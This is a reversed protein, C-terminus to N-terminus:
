KLVQIMGTQKESKFGDDLLAEYFYTGAEEGAWNNQYTAAEFVKKGWRNFIILSKLTAGKVIFVDNKGDKLDPTIVNPVLIDPRAFIVITHSKTTICGTSNIYESKAIYTTTEGLANLLLTNGNAILTGNANLWSALGDTAIELTAGSGYQLLTDGIIAITPKDRLTFTAKIRIGTCAGIQERVAFFSSDVNSNQAVLRIRTTNAIVPDIITFAEPIEWFYSSTNAGNLSIEFTDGVCILSPSTLTNASFVPPPTIIFKTIGSVCGIASSRYNVFVSDLTNPAPFSYEFGNVGPVPFSILSRPRWEYIAGPINPLAQLTVQGASCPDTIRTVTPPILNGPAIRVFRSTNYARGRDFSTVGPTNTYRFAYVRYYVPLGLGTNAPDFFTTDLSNSKLGAVVAKVGGARLTDGLNYMRGDVPNPFLQSGVSKLVLYGTTNDASVMDTAMRWSFGTGLATTRACVSQSDIQPERWSAILQQNQFSNGQGLTPSVLFGIRPNISDSNMGANYDAPFSGSLNGVSYSNPCNFRYFNYFECPRTNAVASATNLWSQSINQCNGGEVSGGPNRDFGLGNVHRGNADVLHLFDGDGAINLTTASGGSFYSTNKSCVRIFGDSKDIDEPQSNCNATSGAHNIIIYTGARLRQWLVNNTFRIKPQWSDTAANNDSFHFGALSVNDKVVLIETWELNQSADNYIENVIVEMPQAASQAFLHHTFLIPLAFLFSRLLKM